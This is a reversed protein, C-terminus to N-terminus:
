ARPVTLRAILNNLSELEERTTAAAVAAGEGAGAGAGGVQLGPLCGGRMGWQAAMTADGLRRGCGGPSRRWAVAGAVRM